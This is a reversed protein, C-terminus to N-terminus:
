AGSAIKVHDIPETERGRFADYAGQLYVRTRVFIRWMSRLEADSYEYRKGEYEQALRIGDARVFQEYSVQRSGLLAWYNSGRSRCIHLQAADSLFSVFGEDDLDYDLDQVTHIMQDDLEFLPGPGSKSWTWPKAARERSYQAVSSRGAANAEAHLRQVRERERRGAEVWMQHEATM